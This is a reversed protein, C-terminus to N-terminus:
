NEALHNVMEQFERHIGLWKARLFDDRELAKEVMVLVQPPQVFGFRVVCAFRALQEISPEDKDRYPVLPEGCFECGGLVSRKEGHNRCEENPCMTETPM